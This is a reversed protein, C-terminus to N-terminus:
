LYTNGGPCVEKPMDSYIGRLWQARQSYSAVWEDSEGDAQSDAFYFHLTLFFIGKVNAKGLLIGSFFVCLLNNRVIYTVDQNFTVRGHQVRVPKTNLDSLYLGALVVRRGCINLSMNFGQNSLGKILKLLLSHEQRELENYIIRNRM